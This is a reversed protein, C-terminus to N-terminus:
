VENVKVHEITQLIHGIIDICQLAHLGSNCVFLEHAPSFTIGLCFGGVNAVQQVVGDQPIRYLQGAEGGAWLDGGSDFALGEPHDLGEAFVSLQACSVIPAVPQPFFKVPQSMSINADFTPCSSLM